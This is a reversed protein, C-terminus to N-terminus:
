LDQLNSEQQVDIPLSNILQFVCTKGDKGGHLIGVVKDGDFIPSGSRGEELPVEMDCVIFNGVVDLVTAQSHYPKYGEEYITSFVGVDSSAQKKVIHKLSISNLVSGVNPATYSISLNNYSKPLKYIACDNFLGDEKSDEELCLLADQKKLSYFDGSINIQLSEGKNAVHGATIFLNGVVIGNGDSYGAKIPIVFDELCKM